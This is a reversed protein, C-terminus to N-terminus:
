CGSEDYATGCRLTGANAPTRALPRRTRACTGVATPEASRAAVMSTFPNLRRLTYAAAAVAGPIAMPWARSEAPKVM